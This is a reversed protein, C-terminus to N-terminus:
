NIMTIAGKVTTQASGELSAMMGEAEYAMEAKHSINMGATTQGSQDVAVSNAGCSMTVGSTTLELCPGGDPGVALKIGDSTMTITAGAGEAGVSLTITEPDLVARSGSEGGTTLTITGDDGTTADIQGTDGDRRIQFCAPGCVVTAQGTSNIAVVGNDEGDGGQADIHILSPDTDEGEAARARLSIHRAATALLGDYCQYVDATADGYTLDQDADADEASEDETAEETAGDDTETADAAGEDEAAPDDAESAEGASAADDVSADNAAADAEQQAKDAAGDAILSAGQDTVKGALELILSAYDMGLADAQTTMSEAEHQKECGADNEGLSRELEILLNLLVGTVGRPGLSRVLNEWVVPNQNSLSNGLHLLSNSAVVMPWIFHTRWNDGDLSQSYRRSIDRGQRVETATGYHVSRDEGFVGSWQGTPIAMNLIQNVVGDPVWGLPDFVLEVKGGTVVENLSGAVFGGVVQTSNGLTVNIDAEYGKTYGLNRYKKTFVDNFKNIGSQVLSGGGAGSGKLMSGFVRVATGKIFDHHSDESVTITHRESHLEIHENDLLDYFTIGNSNEQPTGNVSCTKFGGLKRHEPLEWPPMNESNYVSGIIIPRDPDGHEFAVIVEQGHRPWFFAGWRKGAWVQAVRIWCSRDAPGATKTAEDADDGAAPEAAPEAEGAAPQPRRDWSFWVKVRGYKDILHEEAEAPKDRATDTHDAVVMATQVGQVIPKLTRRPTRYPLSAPQCVFHNEYKLSDDQRASAVGVGLEVDHTISTVLYEGHEDDSANYHGILQFVSGPMLALANGVGVIKIAQVALLDCQIRAELTADAALDSTESSASDDISEEDEALEREQGGHDIADFRPSYGSPVDYLRQEIEAPNLQHTRKGLVVDTALDDSADFPRWFHQFHTDRCDVGAPVLRQSKAWSKITNDGGDVACYNITPIEALSEAPDQEADEDAAQPPLLEADDCLVLTHSKDDHVFYYFLGAEEVLRHFFALDTERYQVCYNRPKRQEAFSYSTESQYGKLLADLIDDVQQDQFVRCDSRLALKVHEPELVATYHTFQDDKGTQAFETILGNWYREKLNPIQVTITATTGLLDGFDLNDDESILTLEYRFLESLGESGRFGTVLLPDGDLDTTIRLARGEQSLAGRESEAPLGAAPPANSNAVSTPM